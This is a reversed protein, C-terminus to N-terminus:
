RTVDLREALLVKYHADGAVEGVDDFRARLDAEYPLFRNAVLYLRGGPALREAAGVILRKAIQRSQTQGAHFPPNTVILRPRVDRARLLEIADGALATVNAIGNRRANAAALRVAAYSSDLLYVHGSPDRRAVSLGIVGSGCGLDATVEGPRITIAGALLAAAPDLMGRAFVGRAEALLLPEGHVLTEAVVPAVRSPASAPESGRVAAVVRHGKRLTCTEAQGFISAMEAAISRIGHDKAGAAYVTGGPPLLRHALALLEGTVVKSPHYLTNTIVLDPTGIDAAVGPADRTGADAGRQSGEGRGDGDRAERQSGEGGWTPDRAERQSGEGRRPPTPPSTQGWSTGAGLTAPDLVRVRTLGAAAATEALLTGAAADDDAVVCWGEAVRRAVVLCFPDAACGLMLVRSTAALPVVADLLDDSPWAARYRAEMEPPVALPLDNILAM